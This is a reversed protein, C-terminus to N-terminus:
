YYGSLTYLWTVPGIEVGCATAWLEFTGPINYPHYLDSPLSGDFNAISTQLPIITLANANFLYEGPNETDEIANGGQIGFPLSGSWSVTPTWKARWTVPEGLCIRGSVVFTGGSFAARDSISRDIAYASGTTYSTMLYGQYTDGDAKFYGTGIQRGDPDQISGSGGIITQSAILIELPNCVCPEEGGGPVEVEVQEVITKTKPPTLEIAPRPGATRVIKPGRKIFTM